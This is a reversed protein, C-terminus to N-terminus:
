VLRTSVLLAAAQMDRRRFARRVVAEDDEGWQSIQFDEDVHAAAWAADPALHGRQVALALLASGMLTTMSHLGALQFADIGAVASALRPANGAPQEIYGVGVTTKFQCGFADTAWALVPDWHQKQLAVLGPPFDARYCTLDSAAYNLCDAAVEPEQGRVGDIASNVLRTLPMGKPDIFEGQASWEAALAEAIDESPVVLEAKGPTRVSKGDLVVAFGNPQARFTAEQYFRKPLPAANARKVAAALGLPDNRDVM